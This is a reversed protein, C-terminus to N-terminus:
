KKRKEFGLQLAATRALEVRSGSKLRVPKGPRVAENDVWTGNASECDVLYLKKGRRHIECHFRSIMREVDRVVIENKGSADQAVAGIHIVDQEIPFRKGKGDGAVIELYPDQNRLKVIVFIVLALVVVVGAAILLYLKRRNAAVQDQVLADMKEVEPDNPAANKAIAVQKAAVDTNGALYAEEAKKLAGRRTTERNVADEVQQARQAQQQSQNAKAQDSKDQAEKRAQYAVSNSPDLLLIETYLKVQEDPDKSALAKAMLKTVEAQKADNAAQSTSTPVNPVPGVGPIASPVSTPINPRQIQAPSLTVWLVVLLAAAREGCLRLPQLPECLKM